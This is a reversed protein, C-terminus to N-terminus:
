VLTLLQLLQSSLLLLQLSIHVLQGSGLMLQGSAPLQIHGTTVGTELITDM